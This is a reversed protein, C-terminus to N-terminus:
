LLESESCGVVARQTLACRSGKTVYHSAISKPETKPTNSLVAAKEESNKGQHRM